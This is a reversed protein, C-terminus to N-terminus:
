TSCRRYFCYHLVNRRYSLPQLSHFFDDDVLDRLQNEVKDLCSFNNQATMKIDELLSVLGAFVFPLSVSVDSDM